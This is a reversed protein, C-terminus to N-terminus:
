SILAALPSSPEGLTGERYPIQADDRPDSKM